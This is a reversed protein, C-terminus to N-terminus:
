PGGALEKIAQVVAAPQDKQIQHDSDLVVTKADKYLAQARAITAPDDNVVGFDVAIAGASKPQNVLRIVPISPELPLALVAEGTSHIADIERAASRSMFLNKAWRTYFPFDEPKKIIGPAVADVLLLGRVEAPYQRAFLQMYLGGLSHGVLIYPSPMGQQQLVQHLDAVVQQGDRPRETPESRGIGPRNYAFVSWAKTGGQARIGDIVAHWGELEARSGNEFVVTGPSGEARLRLLEIAQGQLQTLESPLPPENALAPTALAAALLGGILLHRRGANLGAHAHFSM